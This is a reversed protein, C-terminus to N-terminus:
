ADAITSVSTITSSITEDYERESFLSDDTATDDDAINFKAEVDASLNTILRASRRAKRGGGM